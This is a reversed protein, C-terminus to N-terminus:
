CLYIVIILSLLPFANIVPSVCIKNKMSKHNMFQEIFFLLSDGGLAAVQGLLLEKPTDNYIAIDVVSKRMTDTVSHGTISDLIRLLFFGKRGVVFTTTTKSRLTSLEQTSGIDIFNAAYTGVLVAGLTEFISALIYAQVITVAKLLLSNYNNIQAIKRIKRM